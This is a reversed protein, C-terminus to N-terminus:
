TKCFCLAFYTKDNARYINGGHSYLLSSFSLYLFRAVKCAAIYNDHRYSVYLKLKLKISLMQEVSYKLNYYINLKLVSVYKVFYSIVKKDNASIWM